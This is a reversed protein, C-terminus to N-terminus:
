AGEKPEFWRAGPGCMDRSARVGQATHYNGRTGGNVYDVEANGPHSCESIPRCERLSQQTADRNFHKCDKCLLM